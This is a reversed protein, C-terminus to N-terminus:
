QKLRWIDLLIGVFYELAIIFFGFPIVAQVIWMSFSAFAIEGSVYTDLVFLYSAKALLLTVVCCFADIFIHVVNKAGAPIFRSIVDIAIHQRKRTALIAGLFAVWLVMNRSALESWTVGSNFLDRLLVQSSGLLIMALLIIVVTIKVVGALSRDLFVLINGIKKM